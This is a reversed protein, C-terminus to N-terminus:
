LLDIHDFYLVFYQHCLLHMSQLSSRLADSKQSELTMLSCRSLASIPAPFAQTKIAGVPTAAKLIPPNVM